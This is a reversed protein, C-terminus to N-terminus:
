LEGPVTPYEIKGRINAGSFGGTACTTMFRSDDRPLKPYFGATREAKVWEEKTVETWELQHPGKLFYIQGIDQM